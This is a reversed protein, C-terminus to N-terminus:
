PALLKKVKGIFFYSPLLLISIFGFGIYINMPHIFRLTKNSVIFTFLPNLLLFILFLFISYLFQNILWIKDKTKEGLRAYFIKGVCDEIILVAINKIIEGTLFIVLKRRESDLFCILSPIKTMFFIFVIISIQIFAISNRFKIRTEIVYSFILFSAIGGLLIGTSVQFQTLGGGGYYKHSPYVLSTIIFDVTWVATVINRILLLWFAIPNRLANFVM